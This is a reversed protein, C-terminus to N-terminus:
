KRRGKHLSATTISNTKIICTTRHSCSWEHDAGDREHAVIAQSQIEKRRRQEREVASSEILRDMRGGGGGRGGVGGTPDKVQPLLKTQYKSFHSSIEIKDYYYENNGSGVQKIENDITCLLQKKLRSAESYTSTGTMTNIYIDAGAITGTRSEQREKPKSATQSPPTSSEQFSLLRPPGEMEVILCKGLRLECLETHLCVCLSFTSPKM